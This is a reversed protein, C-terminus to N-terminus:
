TLNLRGKGDTLILPAGSGRTMSGERGRREALGATVREALGATVREALGATVRETLRTRERQLRPGAKERAQARKLRRYIALALHGARTKPGACGMPGPPARPRV